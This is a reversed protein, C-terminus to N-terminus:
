QLKKPRSISRILSIAMSIEAVVSLAAGIILDLTFERRFQTNNNWYYRVAQMGREAIGEQIALGNAALVYMVLLAAMVFVITTALSMVIMVVNPKGGFKKYLFVGLYISAAAAIASYFGILRIIIMLLLGAVADILVGFFGKLYNNPTDTFEQNEKDIQQNVAAIGDPSLRLKLPTDPISVIKSDLEDLPKGTKPCIDAKPAEAEELIRIVKELTAPADQKFKKSTFAGIIVWVGYDFQDATLYKINLARIRNVISTKKEVSAYTSFMFLPGPAMVNSLVNVEYGAIHGYGHKKDYTFDYSSLLNTVYKQM